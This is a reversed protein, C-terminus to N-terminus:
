LMGHKRFAGPTMNRYKAFQREFYSTNNYGVSLAIQQIQLNTRKLLTAAQEIRQQNIFDIVTIGVEQHFRTSLYNPNVVLVKALSQVTLNDSLHSKIYTVVQRSFPKLNVYFNEQSLECYRQIIEAAYSQAAPISTLKEINRAIEGSVADLRYPHIGCEELAHRLQTNVSICLNQSNRLMDKTRVLDDNQFEIQQLFHYALFLNGEKVAETLATNYEYRLEVRRIKSYEDYQEVPVIEKQVKDNWTFDLREYPIQKQTNLIQQALLNSIQHLQNHLVVPIRGCYEIIKRAISPNIQFRYLYSLMEQESLPQILCPGLVLYRHIEDSYLVQYHINLYTNIEYICNPMLSKFLQMLASDVGAFYYPSQFEDKFFQLLTDDDDAILRLDLNSLCKILNKVVDFEIMMQM